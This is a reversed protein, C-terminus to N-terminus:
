EAEGIQYMVVGSQGRTTAGPVNCRLFYFGDSQAARSGFELQDSAGTATTWTDSFDGTTATSNLVSTTDPRGVRLWCQLDSDNAGGGANDNDIVYVFGDEISAYDKVAPCGFPLMTTAQNFARGTSASRAMNSNTTGSANCLIGPYNKRDYASAAGAIAAVALLSAAIKTMMLQEEFM